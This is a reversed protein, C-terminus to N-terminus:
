EQKEERPKAEEVAGQRRQLKEMEKRIMDQRRSEGHVTMLYQMIHFAVGIGWGVMVWVFWPYGGGSIAWVIVLFGNVIVYSGLHWWLELRQKVRREAIEEPTEAEQGPAAPPLPPSASAARYATPPVPVPPSQAGAQTPAPSPAQGPKVTSAGCAHCFSDGEDMEKGCKNCYPM